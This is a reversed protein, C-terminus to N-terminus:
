TSPPPVPTARSRKFRELLSALASGGSRSRVSGLALAIILVAGQFIYPMWLPAGALSLGSALTGLLLVALVTGWANFLKDRFQTAGLFAAAFAPILYAPGVSPSGASVVATILIGAVGAITASTVLSVFRIVSVRIGALRAPEEALGSAHVHRGTSTHGLVYWLIVAVLLMIVVPPTIQHFKSQGIKTFSSKIGGTLAQDNSIILIVSQLLSGTALTAIFSDIHFVVVVIGNVCGIAAAFLLSLICIEVTNLGTNGFLWACFISTAGLTLGVSLDFVGAALPAVLALAVLGTVANDSLIGTATTWALFTSPVWIAFIVISIIGVYVISIRGFGLADLRVRRGIERHSAALEDQDHSTDALTM